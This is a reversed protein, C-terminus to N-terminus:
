ATINMFQINFTCDTLSLAEIEVDPDPITQDPTENQPQPIKSLFRSNFKVVKHRM